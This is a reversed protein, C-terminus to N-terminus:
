DPGCRGPRRDQLVHRAARLKRAETRVISSLRPDFSPPRGFVAIGISYEKLQEARGALTEEIVHRLFARQRAARSFTRGCTIAEMSQVILDPTPQM